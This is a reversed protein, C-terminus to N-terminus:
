IIRNIFDATFGHVNNDGIRLRNLDGYFKQADAANLDNAWEDSWGHQDARFVANLQAKTLNIKM